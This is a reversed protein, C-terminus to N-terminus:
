FLRPREPLHKKFNPLVPDINLDFFCFLKILIRISDTFGTRTIAAQIKFFRNVRERWKHCRKKGIKSNVHFLGTLAIYITRTLIPQQQVTTKIMNAAGQQITLARPLFNTFVGKVPIIVGCKANRRIKVYRKLFINRQQFLVKGQRNELKFKQCLDRPYEFLVIRIQLLPREKQRKFGRTFLPIRM